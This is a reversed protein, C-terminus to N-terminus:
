HIIQEPPKFINLNAYVKENVGALSCASYRRSRIFKIYEYEMDRIMSLYANIAFEFNKNIKKLYIEYESYFIESDVFYQNDFSSINKELKLYHRKDHYLIVKLIKELYKSRRM